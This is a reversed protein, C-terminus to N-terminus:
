DKKEKPPPPPSTQLQENTTEPPPGNRQGKIKGYKFDPRERKNRHDTMKNEAIAPSTATAVNAEAREVGRPCAAIRKESQRRSRQESETPPSEPEHSLREKNHASASAAFDAEARNSRFALSRFNM